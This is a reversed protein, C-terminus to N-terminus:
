SFYLVRSFLTHAPHLFRYHWFIHYAYCGILKLYKMQEVVFSILDKM